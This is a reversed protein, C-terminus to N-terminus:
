IEILLFVNRDNSISIQHNNPVQFKGNPIEIVIRPPVTKVSTVLMCKEEFENMVGKLYNHNNQIVRDLSDAYRQARLKEM